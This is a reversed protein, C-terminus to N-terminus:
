TACNGQLYWDKNFDVGGKTNAVTAGEDCGPKRGILNCTKSTHLVKYGHMWCYNGWIAKPGCHVGDSGRGGGSSCRQPVFKCRAVTKALKKNAATQTAVSTTLFLNESTLQQVTTRNSTATLALNHLSGALADMVDHAAPLQGPQSSSQVTQGHYGCM